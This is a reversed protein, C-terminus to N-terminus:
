IPNPAVTPDRGRQPRRFCEHLRVCADILVSSPCPKALFRSQPVRRQPSDANGSTYIVPLAHRLWFAQAVDWGTAGDGLDVDTVLADVHTDSDCLQLAPVGSAADLVTWGAAEFTAGIDLRTLVDDEVVLVVFSSSTM